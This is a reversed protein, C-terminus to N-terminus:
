EAPMEKIYELYNEPILISTLTGNPRCICCASKMRGWAVKVDDRWFEIYFTLSKAGVREVRLRGEIIDDYHVPAVYHCSSNVRPWGIYTGDEQREMINLGISRFYAHETEEMWKYYNSFHVIGAMDTQSFEIRRKAIFPPM